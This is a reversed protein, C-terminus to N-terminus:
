TPIEKWNRDKVFNNADLNKNDTTKKIAILQNYVTKWKDDSLITPKETKCASVLISTAAILATLGITKSKM